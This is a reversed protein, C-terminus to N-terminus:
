NMIDAFLRDWSWVEDEEKTEEEPDLFTSLLRLDIKNDRRLYVQHVPFRRRQARNMLIVLRLYRLFIRSTMLNKFLTLTFAVIGADVISFKDDARDSDCLYYQTLDNTNDEGWSGLVKHPVTMGSGSKQSEPM